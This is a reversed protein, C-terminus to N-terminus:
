TPQALRTNCGEWAMERIEKAAYSDPNGPGLIFLLGIELDMHGLLPGFKILHGVLLPGAHLFMYSMKSAMGAYLTPVVFM